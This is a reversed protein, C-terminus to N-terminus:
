RKTEEEISFRCEQVSETSWAALFLRRSGCFYTSGDGDVERRLHSRMSRPQAEQRSALRTLDTKESEVIAERSM